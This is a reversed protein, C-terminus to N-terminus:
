HRAPNKAQSNQGEVFINFKGGSTAAGIAGATSRGAVGQAGTAGYITGHIDKLVHKKGDKVQVTGSDYRASSEQRALQFEMVGDGAMQGSKSASKGPAKTKTKLAAERAAKSTSVLTIDKLPLKASTDSPGYAWTGTKTKATSSGSPNAGQAQAKAPATVSLWLGLVVAVIAAQLLKLSM